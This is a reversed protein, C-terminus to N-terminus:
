AEGSAAAGGAGAEPLKLRLIKELNGLGHAAAVANLCAACQEPDRGAATKEWAELLPDFVFEIEGRRKLLRSIGRVARWQIIMVIALTYFFINPGPLIAALGSIPLMLAELGLILYHRSKQRQLFFFFSRRMERQGKRRGHLVRPPPDAPGPAWAFAQEQRLIRVPLLLLKKKATEWAKRSKSFKLHPPQVPDSSFFRMRHRFDRTFFYIM